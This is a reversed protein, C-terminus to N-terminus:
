PQAEEGQRRFLALAGGSPRAPDDPSAPRYVEVYEQVHTLSSLLFPASHDRAPALIRASGKMQHALFGPRESEVMTAEPLNARMWAAIMTIEHEETLSRTMLDRSIFLFNTQNLVLMAAAFVFATGYAPVDERLAPVVIRLGQLALLILPPIGALWLDRAFLFGVVGAWLAWIWFSGPQKGSVLRLLPSHRVVRTGFGALAVLVVIPILMLWSVAISDGPANVHPLIPFGKLLAFGIWPVVVAVYLLFAALAIKGRRRGEPEHRIEQLICFLLMVAPVAVLTSIGAFLTALAYDGRRLFFLTALSLALLATIGAGSPGMQLMWPDLACIIAACFALMRDELVEVGVLYLALLAFCGFVLSMIKTTFLLNLGFLGGLAPLLAWFPSFLGVAPAAPTQGLLYSAWNATTYAEDATYAFERVATVYYLAVVVPLGFRTIQTIVPHQERQM